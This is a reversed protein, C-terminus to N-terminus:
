MACAVELTSDPEGNLGVPSIASVKQEPQQPMTWLPRCRMVASIKLHQRFAAHHLQM